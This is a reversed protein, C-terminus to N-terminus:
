RFRILETVPVLSVFKRLPWSFSSTVPEAFFTSWSFHSQGECQGTMLGGVHAFTPQALLFIEAAAFALHAFHFRLLVAQNLHSSHELHGERTISM